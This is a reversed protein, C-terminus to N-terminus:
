PAAALDLTLSEYRHVPDEPQFDMFDGVDITDADCTVIGANREVPNLVIAFRRDDYEGAHALMALLAQVSAETVGEHRVAVGVGARVARNPVRFKKVLRGLDQENNVFGMPMPEDMWLWFISGGTNVLLRYATYDAEVEAYIDRPAWPVVVDLSTTAFADNSGQLRITAGSPIEHDAIYLAQMEGDTPTISITTSSTWRARGGIPQRLQEAGNLAEARFQWADTVAWSPAAGGSFNAVLGDDLAVTSAIPVDETWSGANVRWRFHGGELSFAWRDGLAFKIGGPLIAFGIGGDSYAAPATTILEYDDLRVGALFVSWTLTNDGSQGGAFALPAGATISATIRDGVQYGGTAGTVGSISLIVTDGDVLSGPCSLPLSFGWEHTSRIELRGDVQAPKCSYNWQGHQAPMYPPSETSDAYFMGPQGADVWCGDGGSPPEFNGAIGAAALVDNCTAAIREFYTESAPLALTGDASTSDKSVVLWTVAGDVWEDNVYVNTYAPLTAASEGGVICRLAGVYPCYVIDDVAYETSNLRGGYLGMDTWVLDGDTVTGGDTPWTPETSGGTYPATVSSGQYWHGNSTTPLAAHPGAGTLVRNPIWPVAAAGATGHVAFLHKADLTFQRWGEDWMALPVPGINEYTVDAGDTVTDGVTTPFTPASTHSTGGGTIAYRFGNRPSPEIVDDVDYETNAAWLPYALKGGQLQTLCKLHTAAGRRVLDIDNAYGAFLTTNHQVFERQWTTVRQLRRLRSNESVTEGGPPDIGLCEDNPGGRVTVDDCPCPDAPRMRYVFKYTGNRANPGAFAQWGDCLAPPAGGDRDVPQFELFCQVGTTAPDTPPAPVTFSYPGQAYFAGTVARALIGSVPGRVDWEGRQEDVLEITLDELPANAAVQLAIDARRVAAGGDRVIQACYAQTFVDVDVAAQGGPVMDNVVVGDVEVLASTTRIADLAEFLTVVPGYTETDVGDTIAISYGGTVSFVRAGAGISRPPRPSFGFSYRGQEYKRYQRFVAPDDGISIRPANPPLTGDGNIQVAGFSWHDGVLDIADAALDERLSYDTGTRTLATRDVTLRIANGGTGTAKARLTVGQFVTIAARTETGLNELTVVVRGADTGDVATLDSITGNGVGVFVPASIAPAGEPTTDTIEIDVVADAGGTYPGTLKVQGGGKKPAVDVRAIANSPVVNTMALDADRVMNRDNGLYLM